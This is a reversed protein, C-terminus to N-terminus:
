SMCEETREEMGFAGDEDQAAMMSHSGAYMGFRGGMPVRHRRGYGAM